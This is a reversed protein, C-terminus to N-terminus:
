PLQHCHEYRHRKLKGACDGCAGVWCKEKKNTTTATSTTITCRNPASHPPGYADANTGYLQWHPVVDSEHEDDDDDDDDADHEMM